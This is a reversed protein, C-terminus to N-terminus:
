AGSGYREQDPRNNLYSVTASYLSTIIKCDWNNLPSAWNFGGLRSVMNFTPSSTEPVTNPVPYVTFVPDGITCRIGSVPATTTPNELHSATFAGCLSVIKEWDNIVVSNATNAFIADPPSSDAMAIIHPTTCDTSAHAPMIGFALVGIIAAFVIAIWKLM